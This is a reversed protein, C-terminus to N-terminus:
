AIDGSLFMGITEKEKEIGSLRTRVSKSLFLNSSM